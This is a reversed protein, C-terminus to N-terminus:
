VAQQVGHMSEKGPMESLECCEWVEGWASTLVPAVDCLQAVPQFQILRQIVHRNAVEREASHSQANSVPVGPVGGGKPTQVQLVQLSGCSCQDFHMDAVQLTGTLLRLPGTLCMASNM